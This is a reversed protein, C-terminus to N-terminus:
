SPPPPQMPQMRSHPSGADVSRVEMGTSLTIGPFNGSLGNAVLPTSYPTLLHFCGELYTFSPEGSIAVTHGLVLGQRRAAWWAVCWMM